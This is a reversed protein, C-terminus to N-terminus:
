QIIIEDSRAMGLLKRAQEDLLELDLYNNSLRRVKNELVKTEMEMKQLKELLIQEQAEFKFKNFLGYKGNLASFSFYFCLTGILFFMVFDIFKIGYSKM